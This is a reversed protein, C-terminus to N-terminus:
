RVLLAKRENLTRRAARSKNAADSLCDTHHHGYTNLLVDLSMGLYGAAQWPDARRAADAPRLPTAYRIRRCAITSAPL